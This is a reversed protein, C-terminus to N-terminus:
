NTLYGVATLHFKQRARIVIRFFGSFIQGSTRFGRLKVDGGPFRCHFQQTLAYSFHWLSIEQFISIDADSIPAVSMKQSALIGRHM